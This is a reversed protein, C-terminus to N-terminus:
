FRRNNKFFTLAFVVVGGLFLVSGLIVITAGLGPHIVVWAIRMLMLGLIISAGSLWLKKSREM